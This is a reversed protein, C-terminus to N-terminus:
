EEARRGHGCRRDRRPSVEVTFHVAQRGKNQHLGGPLTRECLRVRPYAAVLFDSSDKSRLTRPNGTYLPNVNEKRFNRESHFMLNGLPTLSGVETTEKQGHIAEVTENLQVSFRRREHKANRRHDPDRIKAWSCTLPADNVLSDSEENASACLTSRESGVWM